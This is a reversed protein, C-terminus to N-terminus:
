RLKLVATLSASLSFIVMRSPSRVRVTELISAIMCTVKLLARLPSALPRTAKRWNTRHAPRISSCGSSDEVSVMLASSSAM